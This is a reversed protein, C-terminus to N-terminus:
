SEGGGRRWMGRFCWKINHLYSNCTHTNLATNLIRYYHHRRTCFVIIIAILVHYHSFKYVEKWDTPSLEWIITLHYVLRLVKLPTTHSISTEQPIIKISTCYLQGCLNMSNMSQIGASPFAIQKNAKNFCTSACSRHAVACVRHSFCKTSRDNCQM